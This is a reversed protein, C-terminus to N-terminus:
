LILLPLSEEAFDKADLSPNYDQMDPTQFSFKPLLCLLKFNELKNFILLALTTENSFIIKKTEKNGCVRGGGLGIFVKSLAEGLNSVSLKGEWSLPRAAPKISFHIIFM